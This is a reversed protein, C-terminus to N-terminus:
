QANSQLRQDFESGSQVRIPPRSPETPPVCVANGCLTQLARGESGGVGGLMSGRATDPGHLPGTGAFHLQGRSREDDM